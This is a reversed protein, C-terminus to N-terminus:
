RANGTLRDMIAQAAAEHGVKTWHRDIKFHLTMPDRLEIEHNHRIM